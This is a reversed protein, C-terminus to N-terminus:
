GLGLYQRGTPLPKKFDTGHPARGANASSLGGQFRLGMFGTWLVGLGCCPKQSPLGTNGAKLSLSFDPSATQVARLALVETLAGFSTSFAEKM